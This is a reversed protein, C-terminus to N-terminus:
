QVRAKFADLCGASCFYETQDAMTLTHMAGKIEVTMGCIPDLATAPLAITYSPQHAHREAVIEALV